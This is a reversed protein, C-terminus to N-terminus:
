STRALGHSKANATSVYDLAIWKSGWNQAAAVQDALPNWLVGEHELSRIARLTLAAKVTLATRGSGGIVDKRAALAVAVREDPHHAWSLMRSLSPAKAQALRALAQEAPEFQEAGRLGREGNMREVIDDSAPLPQLRYPLATPASGGAQDNEDGSFLDTQMM